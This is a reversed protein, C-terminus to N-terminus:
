AVARYAMMKTCGLFDGDIRKSWNKGLLERREDYGRRRGDREATSLPHFAVPAIRCRVRCRYGVEIALRPIMISQVPVVVVDRLPVIDDRSAITFSGAAALRDDCKM